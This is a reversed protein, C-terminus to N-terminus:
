QEPYKWDKNLNIKIDEPYKHLLNMMGPNAEKVGGNGDHGTWTWSLAGAYGNKYLYEYAEVTSINEYPGKASFEAIVLPKDLEWYSVPHHFPSLAEKGWAYYHVMYFDLTGNENGGAKLLEADTYYNKYDGIDSGARFSWCGNSVKEGPATEHIAAATLNIFQQVFKMETREEKPTWGYERTMGEPENFIEWCMIGPHGALAEVMPILANDIYAQTYDPNELLNRNQEYLVGQRGQLMDFSWLCLCIVMNREVALDLVKRVHDIEGESLGIVKGDEFLPSQTGNLHLWWRMANGGGQAIQDLARTFTEEEFQTLDRAFNNWALNMGSIFVEQKNIEIRNSQSFASSLFFGNIIFLVLSFHMSFRKM